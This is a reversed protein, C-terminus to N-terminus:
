KLKKKSFFCFCCAFLVFCFLFFIIQKFILFQGALSPVLLSRGSSRVINATKDKLLLKIKAEPNYGSKVHPLKVNNYQLICIKKTRKTTAAATATMAKETECSRKARGYLFRVWTSSIMATKFAM